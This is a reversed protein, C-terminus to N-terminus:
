VPTFRGEVYGTELFRVTLVRETDKDFRVAVLVGFEEKGQRLWLKFKEEIVTASIKKRKVHLYDIIAADPYKEQAQKVAIRGWKAYAPEAAAETSLGTWLTSLAICVSLVLNM